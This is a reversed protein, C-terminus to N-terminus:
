HASGSQEYVLQAKVMWDEKGTIRM